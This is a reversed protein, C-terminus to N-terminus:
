FLFTVSGQINRAFPYDTGREYKISSFHWLDSMNIGFLISQLKTTRQLWESNWRYQLSVSQIDFWNDDMVFRSSAYTSSSSYGKFFTKDGPKQWRDEFVRRDVNQRGITGTSVEVRNILTSNYTQGGWQYGFSVNLTFDKWRIMTSANGRWPSGYTADVGAYVYDEKSRTKTVNGNKDLYMEEGTAPDIGLSRVVYLGYMSRGEYLLHAPSTRDSTGTASIYNENQAKIADSLTLIENKNYILQGSVTWTIDRHTDRLLYLNLSAEFGKNRVKGVNESYSQFGMALPLDMSSVLGKTDKIYYNFEGSLRYDFLSFELGINTEYTDQWTLNPNGFGALHAANWNVYRDGSAYRYMTRAAAADFDMAGTAGYSTKLRLENVTPALNEMFKEHHVNWGAGISWFPAFREEAGFQSSGDMRFSGDIFYRNDYTYNVNGTYGVRRSITESGTPTGGSQYQLANTISSLDQDSFGEAVFSYNDYKSESISFDVGAYLQHKDKFMKSYSLTLRGDYTFDDGTGYTYQGRRLIEDTTDSNNLFMSHEAPYFEDSTSRTTSIGLQGRLTLEPLINWEISFNNIIGLSRSKNITNLTADYLPNQVDNTQHLGDFYRIINGEDDYPRYYPQMTVYNSFSGYPSEDSLTNSINTYNRFILNKYSYMLTIDGNFVRRSSGKMAGQTDRWSLSTGWRFEERGGELRVNYNQGVGTRLPKSLWDTDVGSIVDKLRKQYEQQYLYTQSPNGESEYLGVIRELELKDRANLLDYSTLDPVELTIGATATVKLKGPEPQKTEIVIVGNAGRSGYIATASADKLITISEIEEDNYDMLKTLTIEFGDMIILPTNVNQQTTENLEDISLPLSSTGRINMQPLANPDSGLANNMPINLSADANRLTQLLNQGKYMKLKEKGITTAAGTYSERAKRFIGTVVVDGLTQSDSQLLVEMGSSAALTQTKMGIYSIQLQAGEPVNNITFRGDIDTAAGLDSGVVRVSAGIVPFGDEESIVTGSIKKGGGMANKTSDKLLNINIFQGDIVYEFPKGKLIMKLADEVSANKVQGSVRYKNVDDYSFVVKYGSQEELKKLASSLNEGKLEMTIRKGNGNDQAQVPPALFLCCLLMVFSLLKCKEM